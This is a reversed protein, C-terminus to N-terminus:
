CRGHRRLVRTAHGHDQLLETGHTRGRVKWGHVSNAGLDSTDRLSVKTLTCSFPLSAQQDSLVVFTYAEGVLMDGVCTRTRAAAM